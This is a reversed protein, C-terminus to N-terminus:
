PWAQCNPCPNDEPKPCWVGKLSTSDLDYYTIFIYRCFSVAISTTEQSSHDGSSDLVSPTSWGSGQDAVYKLYDNTTDLYSIHRGDCRDIALSPASLYCAMCLFNTGPPTGAIDPKADSSEWASM